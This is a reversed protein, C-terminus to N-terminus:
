LESEPLEANLASYFMEAIYDKIGNGDRGSVRIDLGFVLSPRVIVKHQTWGVHGGHDDMHHFETSFVLREGDRCEEECLKTGCDFGGGSPLLTRVLRAIREGHRDHWETNGAKTCNARAAILAALKNALTVTAM